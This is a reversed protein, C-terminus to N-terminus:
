NKILRSEISWLSIPRQALAANSFQKNTTIEEGCWSPKQVKEKESTLEVEAIVLPSNKGQFCDIIWAGAYLNLEYRTKTLKHPALKWLSEADNLPIAYEFEHNSIGQAPSKLTLWAKKEGLIRM